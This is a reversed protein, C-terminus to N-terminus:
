IVLNFNECSFQLGHCDKLHHRIYIESEFTFGVHFKKLHRGHRNLSKMMKTSFLIVKEINFEKLKKLGKLLIEFNKRSIMVISESSLKELNIMNRAIERCFRKKIAIHIDSNFKTLELVKLMPLNKGIIVHHTWDTRTIIVHELKMFNKLAAIIGEEEYIAVAEFMKLNPIFSGTFGFPMGFSQWSVPRFHAL